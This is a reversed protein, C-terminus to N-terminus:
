DQLEFGRSDRHQPTGPKSVLIMIGEILGWLGSIFSLMGASLVTILLQAVAKGTFGLYFNHVGLSGLLIGLIGAVIKSKQGVPPQVYPQQGYAGYPQESYPQSYPQQAYPQQSYAQQDYGGAPTSANGYDPTNVYPNSSSDQQDYPNYPTSM